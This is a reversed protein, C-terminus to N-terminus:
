KMEKETLAALLVQGALPRLIRRSAMRARTVDDGAQEAPILRAAAAVLRPSGGNELRDALWSLAVGTVALTVASPQAPAGGAATDGEPVARAAPQRDRVTDGVPLRGPRGRHVGRATRGAAGRSATRSVRSRATRGAGAPRGRLEEELARIQITGFLATGLSGGLTRFFAIASSASGIDGPRVANQTAVLPVQMFAGVGLGVVVTFALIVTVSTGVEVLSLLYLGRGPDGRGPRLDDQLPGDQLDAM